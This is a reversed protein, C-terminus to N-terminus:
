SDNERNTNDTQVSELEHDNSHLTSRRITRVTSGSGSDSIKMANPNRIYYVKHFMLSNVTILNAVILLVSFVIYKNIHSLDINSIIAMLIAFFGTNYISFGIIKSEDYIKYEIRRVRIGLIAGGILLLIGYTVIIWGLIRGAKNTNCTYYDYYPRHVDIQNLTVGPSPHIAMMICLLILIPLCLVGVVIAVQMNTIKIVALTTADFLRDVRWTKAFLPIFLLAFGMTLSWNALHCAAVSDSVSPYRTYVHLYLLTSGALCTYMFIPSAAKITTAKRNVVLYTLWVANSAICVGAIVGFVIEVTKYRNKDYTREYWLPEPFVHDATKSEYPSIPNLGMSINFQLLFGSNEQAHNANWSIKGKYTTTTYRRLFDRLVYHDKTGSLKLLEGYIGIALAGTDSYTNYTEIDANKTYLKKFQDLTGFREDVFKTEPTESSICMMYGKTIDYGDFDAWSPGCRAIMAKPTYDHEYMVDRLFKAIKGNGTCIYWVDPDDDMNDLVIDTLTKKLDEPYEHMPDAERATLDNFTATKVISIDNQELFKFLEENCMGVFSVTSQVFIATKAGGIRLPVVTGTMYNSIMTGLSFSWQRPYDSFTNYPTYSSIVLRENEELVQTASELPNGVPPDAVTTYPALYLDVADTDIWDQLIQRAIATDYEDEAYVIEMSDYMEGDIELPFIHENVYELGVKHGNITANVLVHVVPAGQKSMDNPQMSIPAGVRISKCDTLISLQLATLLVTYKLM